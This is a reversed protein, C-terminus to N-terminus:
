CSLSRRLHWVVGGTLKYAPEALLSLIPLSPSRQIRRVLHRAVRGFWGRAEGVLDRRSRASWWKAYYAGDALFYQRLKRRLALSGCPFIHYALAEPSYRVTGGAGIVQFFFDVDEAGGAFRGNSLSEDFAAQVRLARLSPLCVAFAAGVGLKWSDFPSSIRLHGHGWMAPDAGRDFILYDRYIAGEADDRPAALVRATAITAATRDGNTLLADITNRELIVDDDVFVVWESRTVAMAVNRARAVGGGPVMITRIGGADLGPPRRERNCVVLVPYDHISAALQEVRAAARADARTPIVVTADVRAGRRPASM